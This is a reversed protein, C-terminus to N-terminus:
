LSRSALAGRSSTKTVPRACAGRRSCNIIAADHYAIRPVSQPSARWLALRHDRACVCPPKRPVRQLKLGAAKRQPSFHRPSSANLAEACATRRRSCPLRGGYVKCEGSFHRAPADSPSLRRLNPRSDRGQLIARLGFKARVRREHPAALEVARTANKTRPSDSSSTLTLIVSSDTENRAGM